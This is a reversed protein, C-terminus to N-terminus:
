ILQMMSMWPGTDQPKVLKLINKVICKSLQLRGKSSILGKDKIVDRFEVQYYAKIILNLINGRMSEPSTIMMSCLASVSPHEENESCPWVEDFQSFNLCFNLFNVVVELQGEGLNECVFASMTSLLMCITTALRKHCKETKAVQMCLDLLFISLQTNTNLHKSVALM